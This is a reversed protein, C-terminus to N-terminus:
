GRALAKNIELSCVEKEEGGILMDMYIHAYRECGRKGLL